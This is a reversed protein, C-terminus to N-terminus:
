ERDDDSAVKMRGYAANIAQFDVTSGGKDPHHALVQKRFAQTVTKRGATKRVGLAEAAVTKRRAAELPDYSPRLKPGQTQVQAVVSGRSTGANTVFTESATEESEEEAYRHVDGNAWTPPCELALWAKGRSPRSSTAASTGVPVAVPGEASTSPRYSHPASIPTSWDPSLETEDEGYYDPQTIIQVSPKSTTVRQVDWRAGEQRLPHATQV